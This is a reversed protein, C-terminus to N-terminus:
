LLSVRGTDGDVRVRSGDPIENTAKKTAVIGPIGYERSVIAAHSLLGGRDTVLAGLSALVVNFAASTNKTILVDGKQIREFDEPGGIVRATGEYVGPSVAIGQLTLTAASEVEEAEEGEDFVNSMAAVVSETAARLGSPMLHFPPPEDPPPAGLFEPMDEIRVATRQARRDSLQTALDEAQGRLLDIVEPNDCELILEAEEIVGREQLRRGAELLALRSIGAAWIDNYVGREDRLRNVNRAEGLWFEFDARSAEPLKNRIAEKQAEVSVDSVEEAPTDKMAGLIRYKIVNPTELVTKELVSYGSVVAHGAYRLYEDFKEAVDANLERLESAFEDARIAELKGEDMGAAKLAAVLADMQEKFAGTSVPTSGRLLAIAEGMEVDGSACTVALYRGVPLISPVSYRHHRYVMEGFNEYCEELHQILTEDDIKQLDVDVLALNRRISDPKYEQDWEELDKRWLQDRMAQHWAKNRRRFEPHVRMLLWLLWGPPPGGTPDDPEGVMQQRTYIFGNVPVMALRAMPSGYRVMGEGFGRELNPPFKSLSYPPQAGTMHTTEKVWSASNPAQYETM